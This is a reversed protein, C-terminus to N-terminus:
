TVEVERCNEASLLAMQAHTRYRPVKTKQYLEELEIIQEETLPPAQLRKMVGNYKESYRHNDKAETWSVLRTLAYGTSGQNQDRLIGADYREM